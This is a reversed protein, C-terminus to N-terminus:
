TIYFSTVSVGFPIKVQKTYDGVAPDRIVVDYSGSPANDYWLRVV